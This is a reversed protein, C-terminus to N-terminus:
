SSLGLLFALAKKTPRYFSLLMFDRQPENFHNPQSITTSPGMWPMNAEKHVSLPRDTDCFSM